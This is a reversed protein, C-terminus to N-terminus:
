FALDRSGQCGHLESVNGGQYRWPRVQKIMPERYRQGTHRSIEAAEIVTSFIEEGGIQATSLLRDIERSKSPLLLGLQEGHDPALRQAGTM